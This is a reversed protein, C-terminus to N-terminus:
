KMPKFLAQGYNQFSMILKLQTGGSKMAVSTIKQTVLDRLLGTIVPDHRPYLEYRNIGIHFRLWNPYSEAAAEGQPSFELEEVNGENQRIDANMNFLTDEETLRPLETRYLPHEFLTRLRSSGPVGRHRQGTEPERILGRKEAGTESRETVKERSHSSLNSNPENSFDQLLRLSHKNPWGPEASRARQMAWARPDEAPSHACSCGGGAAGGGASASSGIARKELKPLLDIMIHMTCAVLFVM